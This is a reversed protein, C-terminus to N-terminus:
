VIRRIAIDMVKKSPVNPLKAAVKVTVVVASTPGPEKRCASRSALAVVFTPPGSRIRNEIEPTPERQDRDEYIMDGADVELAQRM